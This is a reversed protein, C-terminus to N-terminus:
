HKEINGSPVLWLTGDPYDFTVVFHELVPNGVLAAIL